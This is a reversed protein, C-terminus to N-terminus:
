KENGGDEQNQQDTEGIQRLWDMIPLTRGTKTCDKAGWFQSYGKPSVVRYFNPVCDVVVGINGSSCIVDGVKIANKEEWAKVKEAAEAYSFNKLIEETCTTNFIEDLVVAPIYGEGSISDIRRALEWAENQGQKRAEDISNEM